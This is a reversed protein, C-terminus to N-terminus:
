WAIRGGSAELGRFSEPLAEVIDGAILGAHGTRSAARDGADGHAFVGARAADYAPIGAALLAGIVGTLVDGSGATAMGPNGSANFAVRGAPEAVVTRNGKLVVVTGTAEALRRAAGLRDDQVSASSTELLRAAEGPHPTIVAPAGKALIDLRRPKEAVTGLADADIVAPTGRKALIATVARRTEPSLGLGPGIAIAERAAALRLVATAAGAALAGERTEALPETMAEAQGASVTGQASRPTALTVLGAGSRLAGRAVLIAAGPKNRSGAVALLHGFRGKHDDRRRLPLIGAAADGDTWDLAPREAAVVEDPIGIPVVRVRGALSAAPELALALKPRCLTYTIEARVALGDLVGRDADIGSPLDVAAVIRRARTLDDIARAALGKAGGRIGTGLIADLVVRHRPLMSAVAAWASEDPAEEIPIGADRTAVASAAADGRLAAVRALLVVRARIGREALYRAAVLGDGGNNGSGCVILLERLAAEGFDALLGEAVGRGAADMLALGPIGLEDIARRDVRRMQEGTLLEMPRAVYDGRAPVTM